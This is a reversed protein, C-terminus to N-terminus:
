PKGRWPSFNTDLRALGSTMTDGLCLNVHKSLDKIIREQLISINM